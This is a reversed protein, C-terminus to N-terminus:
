FTCFISLFVSLRRGAQLSGTRLGHLLSASVHEFFLSFTLACPTSAWSGEGPSRVLLDHAKFLFKFVLVGPLRVTLDCQSCPSHPTGM